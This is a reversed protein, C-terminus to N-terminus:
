VHARGIEGQKLIDAPIKAGNLKAVTRGHVVVATTHPYSREGYASFWGWGGDDNQMERLRKIGKRVMKDVEDKDWVPNEQWRKWQEARQKADGIEQPNLNVRKNKVEQLNVNM